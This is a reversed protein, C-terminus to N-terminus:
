DEEMGCTFSEGTLQWQQICQLHSHAAGKQHGCCVPSHLNLTDFPDKLLFAELFRTQNPTYPTLATYASELPSYGPVSHNTVPNKPQQPFTMEVNLRTLAEQLMLIRQFHQVEANYTLNVDAM